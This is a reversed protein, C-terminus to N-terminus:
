TQPTSTPGWHGGLWWMSYRCKAPCWLIYLNSLDKTRRVSHAAPSGQGGERDKQGTTKPPIFCYSNLTQREPANVGM